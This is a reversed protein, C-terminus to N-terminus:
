RRVLITSSWCVCLCTGEGSIPWLMGHGAAGRAEGALPLLVEVAELGAGFAELWSLASWDREKGLIGHEQYRHRTFCADRHGPNAGRIKADRSYIEEAMFPWSSVSPVISGFFVRWNLIIEDSRSSKVNQSWKQMSILLDGMKERLCPSDESINGNLMKELCRKFTKRLVLASEDVLILYDSEYNVSRDGHSMKTLLQSLSEKTICTLPLFLSFHVKFMWETGFWQCVNLIFRCLFSFQKLM